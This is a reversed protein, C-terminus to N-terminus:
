ATRQNPSTPSQKPSLTMLPTAKHRCHSDQLTSRDKTFEWMEPNLTIKQETCRQLFQRVNDTHLAPDSDYIVVNDVIRRYGSLGTFAEYMRCNYWYHVLVVRSLRCDQMVYYNYHILSIIYIPIPIIIITLETPETCINDRWDVMQGRHTPDRHRATKWATHYDGDLWVIEVIDSLINEVRGFVPEKDWNECLM